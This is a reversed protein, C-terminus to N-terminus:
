PRTSEACGASPRASAAIVPVMAVHRIPMQSLRSPLELDSVEIEDTRTEVVFILDELLQPAAPHPDDIPRALSLELTLYRDLDQREREGEVALEDLSEQALRSRCRRELVRIDHWNIANSPPAVHDEEDHLQQAPM